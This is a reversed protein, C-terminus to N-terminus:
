SESFPLDGWCRACGTDNSGYCTSPNQAPHVLSELYDVLSQRGANRFNELADDWARAKREMLLYDDIAQQIEAEYM